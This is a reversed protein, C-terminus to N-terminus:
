RLFVAEHPLAPLSPRLRTLPEKACVPAPLHVRTASCPPAHHLPPSTRPALPVGESAHIPAKFDCPSSSRRILGVLGTFSGLWPTMRRGQFPRQGCTRASRPGKCTPPMAQKSVLGDRAETGGSAGGEVEAADLEDVLRADARRQRPEVAARRPAFAHMAAGRLVVTRVHGHV